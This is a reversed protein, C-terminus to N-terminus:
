RIGGEREGEICLQVRRLRLTDRALPSIVTFRNVLVRAAEPFAYADKDGLFKKEFRVVNLPQESFTTSPREFEQNMLVTATAVPTVVAATVTNTTKNNPARNMDGIRAYVQVGYAQINQLYGAYLELYAKPTQPTFGLSETVLAIPTGQSIGRGLLECLPNDRLGLAAKALTNTSCAPVIIQQWDTKTLADQPTIWNMGDPLAPKAKAVSDSPLVTLTYESEWCNKVANLIPEFDSVYNLLVLADSKVAKTGATNGNRYGNLLAQFASDSLIRQVIQNILEENM